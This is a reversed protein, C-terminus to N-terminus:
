HVFEIMVVCNFSAYLLSKKKKNILVCSHTHLQLAWLSWFLAYFEKASSNCITILQADHTNPVFSLDEAFLFFFFFGAHTRLWQAVEGAELLVCTWKYM